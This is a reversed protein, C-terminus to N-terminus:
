DGFHFNHSKCYSMFEESPLEKMLYEMSWEPHPELVKRVEFWKFSKQRLTITSLSSANNCRIVRNKFITTEASCNRVNDNECYEYLEDFNEFRRVFSEGAMGKEVVSPHNWISTSVWMGNTDPCRIQIKLNVPILSM